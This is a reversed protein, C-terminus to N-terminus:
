KGALLLDARAMAERSALIKERSAEVMQAMELQAEMSWVFMDRVFNPDHIDFNIPLRQSAEAMTASM